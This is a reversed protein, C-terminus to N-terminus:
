RTGILWVVAATGRWNILLASHLEYATSVLDTCIEVVVFAWSPRSKRFSTKVMFTDREIHDLAVEAVREKLCWRLPDVSLKCPTKTCGRTNVQTSSADCVEVLYMESYLAELIIVM